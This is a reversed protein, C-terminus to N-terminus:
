HEEQFLVHHDNEVWSENINSDIQSQNLGSMNHSISPRKSVITQARHIKSEGEPIFFLKTPKQSSNIKKDLTYKDDDPTIQLFEFMDKLDDPVLEYVDFKKTLWTNVVKM